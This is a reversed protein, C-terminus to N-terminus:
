FQWCPKYFSFSIRLLKFTVLQLEKHFLCHQSYPPVAKEDQGMLLVPLLQISVFCFLYTKKGMMALDIPNISTAAIQVLVDDPDNIHPIRATTSLKLEELGGYGHIQWALMKTANWKRSVEPVTSFGRVCCNVRIFQDINGIKFFMSLVKM